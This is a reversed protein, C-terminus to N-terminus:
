VAQQLWGMKARDIGPLVPSCVGESQLAVNLASFFFEYLFREVSPNSGYEYDTGVAGSLDVPSCSSPPPRNNLRYWCALLPSINAIPSLRLALDIGEAGAIRVLSIETVNRWAAHENRTLLRYMDHALDFRRIRVVHRLFSRYLRDRAQFQDIFALFRE